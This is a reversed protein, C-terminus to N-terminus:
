QLHYYKLWIFVHVGKGSQSIEVDPEIGLNQLFTVLEITNDRVNDNPKTDKNDIDFVIVDTYEIDRLTYIGVRLNGNVHKEYLEEIVEDDTIPKDLQQVGTKEGLLFVADKRGGMHFIVKKFIDINKEIKEERKIM